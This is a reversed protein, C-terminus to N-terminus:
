TYLIKITIKLLLIKNSLLNKKKIMSVKMVLIFITIKSKTIIIWIQISIFIIWFKM